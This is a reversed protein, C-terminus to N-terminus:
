VVEFNFIDDENLDRSFDLGINSYDIIEVESVWGDFQYLHIDYLNEKLDFKIESIIREADPGPQIKSKDLHIDFSVNDIEMTEVSVIHALQDAFVKHGNDFLFCAFKDIILKENNSLQRNM